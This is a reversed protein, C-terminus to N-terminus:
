PLAPKADQALQLAEQPFWAGAAPDDAGWLPDFLAQGAANTPWGSQTYATYDWARVGGASDCQGDSQGPTKVWLYADLLPVGTNAAPELGLGSDPPNCWNGSALTSIVSAPQNYPPNAYQQMNNPGDGNRSTDIVFRTTAVAGDMNAAYWQTTLDWTSFDSETAPYYQSACGSPNGYYSNSPDTVMAICDSIWTGYDILNPDPQYNSVNLFFGQTDQVSAELLRQTITGVSQWASHTGDLYVSAGPDAELASVAYQLGAIREADTFPYVSSSLGCGSPMNGLADPELIVIAKGGGIGKAFGDIWAEYASENLAGGASYQACDRGPIDYAVLVPVAHEIAAEAMAQRVQQQVQAPTGSNFWVARPIAEMEAILAADKIDHDKLLAAIQQPAGPSPPPVFFRTDPSITRNAATTAPAATSAAATSIGSVFSVTLAASAAVAASAWRSRRRSLQLRMTSGPVNFFIVPVNGPLFTVARWLGTLPRLARVNGTSNRPVLRTELEIRLPEFRRGRVQRLLVSVATRGLEALPQRVTTLAPVVVTAEVTDDFGVVSLDGPIRLGRAAAEQMAGIAMSDNFAFVATPPDPLDLLAAAEERGGDIKFNSYRVLSTDPLVGAGALAAHYGRLREQTALWAAPGGIVGIRRHGLGLLHRTAQTAGSSHAACVVPIGDPVEARPDVVVFPFGHAALARLEGASEEPLVLVAGDAEGDALRDLLSTEREHSHRTPCLMLRLDHEYLAEATGSLIGAFYGPHVVPMMVGILGTAPATRVRRGGAPYGRERLVREVAERTEASVDSHGNVVRSVTAISVGAVEAVQKITVKERRVGGPKSTKM